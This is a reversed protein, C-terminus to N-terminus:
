ESKIFVALWVTTNEEDTFMVRHKQHADIMCYDGKQLDVREGEEFELVAEGELLLVFESEEQDYWFGPASTQGNSIIREIKVVKNEFLTDFIESKTDVVIQEFINAKDM